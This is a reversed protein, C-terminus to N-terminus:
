MKEQKIQKLRDLLSRLVPNEPYVNREKEAEEEAKEYNGKIYAIQALKGHIVPQGPNLELSKKYYYEASGYLHREEEFIGTWVFLDFDAPNERVFKPWFIERREYYSSHCFSISSFAAALILGLVACSKHFKDPIRIQSLIVFLGAMPIYLRHEFFSSGFNSGAAMTPLLFIFFWSIGFLFVQMPMYHSCPTERRNKMIFLFSFIFFAAGALSSVLPYELNRYASSIVPFFPFVAKGSVVPLYAINKISGILDFSSMKLGAFHRLILWALIPIVSYASFTKLRINSEKRKIWLWLACIFPFVIASEKSFMACAFCFSYLMIYRNKRENRYKEIFFFASFIFVALLSDNRGPIWSAAVSGAPHAAFVLSLIFASARNEFFIRLFFFICCVASSHFLINIFHSFFYNGSNLFTDAMFSVNLLPRYMFNPADHLYVGRVFLSFINTFDSLVPKSKVLLYIDDLWTIDYSLTKGYLIFCFCTLILCILNDSLLKESKDM